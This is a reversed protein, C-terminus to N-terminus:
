STRPSFGSWPATFLGSRWRSEWRARATRCSPSPDRRTRAEDEGPLGAVEDRGHEIAPSDHLGRAPHRARAARRAREEDPVKPYDSKHWPLLMHIISSAVFVLVASLLIPLWLSMLPTM